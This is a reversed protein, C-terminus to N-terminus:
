EDFINFSKSGLDTANIGDITNTPMGEGSTQIIDEAYVEIIEIWPKTYQMKMM